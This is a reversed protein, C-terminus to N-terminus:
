NQGSAARSSRGKAIHSQGKQVRAAFLKGRSSQCLFGGMGVEYKGYAAMFSSFIVGLMGEGAQDRLKSKIGSAASPQVVITKQEAIATQPSKCHSTAKVLWPASCHSLLPHTSLHEALCAPNSQRTKVRDGWPPLRARGGPKEGAM